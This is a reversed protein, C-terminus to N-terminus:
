MQQGGTVNIAQGTMYSSYESALFVMVDEIDKYECSRKMPVQNIYKARVEEETIGQNAAYQKFLSNVWLPSNLMNGPCICNVRVGAEAFELALSQTLGVGGFKSAAYAGNKYSGKRGSKSNIQIISGSKAALMAPAFAKVVNFYGNLNVATVQAFAQPTLNYIDGSKVIGANSVLIDVKGWKDLVTKAMQECQEYNTVDVPIAIADKLGAAIVKAGEINFDCVAVSCGEADLRKALAEGLGQSAGTVVAVKGKLNIVGM